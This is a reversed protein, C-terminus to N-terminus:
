ANLVSNNLSRANRTWQEPTHKDAGYIAIKLCIITVIQFYVLGFLLAEIVPRSLLIVPMSMDSFTSERCIVPLKLSRPPSHLLSSLPTTSDVVMNPSFETNNYRAHQVGARLARMCNDSSVRDLPTTHAEAPVHANQHQSASICGIQLSTKTLLRSKLLSVPKNAYDCAVMCLCHCIMATVQTNIDSTHHRFGCWQCLHGLTM